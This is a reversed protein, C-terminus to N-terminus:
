AVLSSDTAPLPLLPKRAVFYCSLYHVQHDTVELGAQELRAGLDDRVYDAYYPEHFVQPFAEMSEQLQPSDALQISDCLVFIGGPKLVRAIENFVQQRIRGPLEHFLFVSTVAAFTQDAFPIAAADAQLLQPLEGPLDSLIQNAKRLYAPSLDIGQLSLKPFAQRLLRLTRGTGCGVDLLRTSKSVPEPLAQKLPRIIRRRMADANGGFLLEVQLDYLSASRDSLYGDTQHHFNQLYYQPYGETDIQESFQQYQKHQIRATISPADLWFQPYTWAFEAWPTDFLLSLPYLGEEAEQWDVQLLREIRSRLEALTAPSYSSQTPEDSQATTTGSRVQQALTMADTMAQCARNFLIRHVLSFASKGWQLTKYLPEGAATPIPLFLDSTVQM